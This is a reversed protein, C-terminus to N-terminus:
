HHYPHNSKICLARYLAEAVIVMALDHPFTLPSLSWRFNCAGIVEQASGDPGGIVFCVEGASLEQKELFSALEPSNLQSGSQIVLAVTYADGALPAPM